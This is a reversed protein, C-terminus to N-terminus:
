PNSKYFKKRIDILLDELLDVDPSEPLTSVLFAEEMEKETTLLMDMVEEYSYKHHKIDLLLDRDGTEKRDLKMGQGLAIEKAMTLIRLAHSSNKADYQSGLNEKYRQPNRNKVWEWYEKYQRCHTSFANVNYQFSILPEKSDAKTVSSLRLQTSDPDAIIGRYKIMDTKKGEELEVPIMEASMDESVWFGTRIAASLDQVGYRLRAYDEPKLNKDAFWDYYLVYYEVGNPLRVLGCHEQSLGNERLWKELNWVGESHDKHVWCFELPTKRHEVTKPDINMAKNLGRAKGLQSKAYGRFSKFCEKTLLSDRIDFLPQLLPSKKLILKDPTFLSMLADPNSKSLESIYKTLEQAVNDNKEDAIIRQYRLGTGLLWDQPCCFVSYTDIDSTETELGFLHSGRISNFLIFESDILDKYEMYKLPKM